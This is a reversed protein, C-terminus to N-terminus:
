RGTRTKVLLGRAGEERARWAALGAHQKGFAYLHGCALALNARGRGGSIASIAHKAGAPGAQGAMARLSARWLVIRRWRVATIMHRIDVMLRTQRQRHGHRKDSISLVAGLPSLNIGGSCSTFTFAAAVYLV